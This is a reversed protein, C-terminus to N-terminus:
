EVIIEVNSQQRLEDSGRQQHSPHRGRAFANPVRESPGLPQRVPMGRDRSANEYNNNSVSRNSGIAGAGSPGNTPAQHENDWSVISRLRRPSEANTMNSSRNLAMSGFSNVLDDEGHSFPGTSIAQAKSVGNYNSFRLQTGLPVHFATQASAPSPTYARLDAVSKAARLSQPTTGFGGPSDPIGLLGSSQQGRLVNFNGQEASRAENFDITAAKNLARARDSPQITNVNGLPPSLREHRYVHVQRQEGNGHSHHILSMSHALSHVIRRDSASLHAPFILAERKLDEKFLRLEDYLRLTNPDNLNPMEIQGGIPSPTNTPRSAMSSMSPQNQLSSGPIPRHQEELQGRRERKEREIREREQLPLMKKYEVRLRRGQIDYHNLTSIVVETEEASTFNAFALGRFVGNDFHYNFAYPLPLGLTSMLDLLQEKRVAFPINKIVIATPILEEEVDHPDSGRHHAAHMNGNAVYGGMQAMQEPPMWGNPLLPRGRMSPKYGGRGTFAYGPAAAQNNSDFASSNWTHAQQTDLTGYAPPMPGNMRQFRTPDYRFGQDQPPFMDAGSALGGGYADFQRSPARHMNQPQTGRAPPSRASANDYYLDGGQPNNM